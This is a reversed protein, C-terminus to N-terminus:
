FLGRDSQFLHKGQLEALYSAFYTAPIHYALPSFEERVDGKVRFVFDAQSAIEKDEEHVIAVIRRGLSKATKVLDLARWYSKGPPAIVFTPLDDPYVFREVHAWEELDQGM